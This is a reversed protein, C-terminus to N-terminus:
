PRHYAWVEQTMWSTKPKGRLLLPVARPGFAARELGLLAGLYDFLCEPTRGGPSDFAAFFGQEHETLL